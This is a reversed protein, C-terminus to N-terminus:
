NPLLNIVTLVWSRYDPFLQLAVFAQDRDVPRGIAPHGADNRTVRIFSAIGGFTTDLTERLDRPLSKRHKGFYDQLFALLGLAPGDLKTKVAAAHAKDKAEIAEGLRFLLHESAAGLMLAAADPLNRRFAELAQPLYRGEVEDLPEVDALAKLYGETDHPLIRGAKVVDQGYESLSLFPWQNNNDDLGIVLIGEIILAWVAERFRRQDDLFMMPPRGYPQQEVPYGRERAVAATAYQLNVYQDPASRKLAELICSRMLEPTLSMTKM